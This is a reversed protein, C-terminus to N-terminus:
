SLIMNAVTHGRHSGNSCTGLAGHHVVIHPLPPRVSSSVFKAVVASVSEEGRVRGGSATALCQLLLLCWHM